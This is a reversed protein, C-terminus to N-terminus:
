REFSHQLAKNLDDTFNIELKDRLDSNLSSFNKKNGAPLIIKGFGLKAAENIRKDVHSVSRIEGGLGVEGIIVLGNKAIRNQFSSVIAACVALDIAPEDIRLGGAINLFVNQSSLKLGARKELVALLIALRRYDFGTAV